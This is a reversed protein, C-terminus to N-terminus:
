ARLIQEYLDRSVDDILRQNHWLITFDGNHRRCIRKLSNMKDFAANTLGLNMYRPDIVTCEMVVLPRERVSLRKREVVDYLPYEYCLGCRFGAQDAFALSSDYALGAFDWASMSYPTKWRLFHQRGGRIAHEIGANALQQRMRDLSNRLQPGDGVNAYGPHIGIEHDRSAIRRWQDIVHPHSLPMGLDLSHTKEPIYYFASRLNQSESVSMIWDLVDNPDRQWQKQVCISSYQLRRYMERMAKRPRGAALSGMISSWECWYASPLDIDHSPLVRFSRNKRSLSPWLQKMLQWLLDIYENGIARDLFNCKYNISASAPFRDHADRDPVVVEEYRSMLFFLSGLVDVGLRISESSQALYSGNECKRGFLIPIDAEREKSNPNCFTDLPREPLTADSLWRSSAKKFFVDAIRLCKENGDVTITFDFEREHYVVEEIGLIEGFLWDLVYKIETECHKPIGLHITKLINLNPVM